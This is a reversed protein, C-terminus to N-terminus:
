MMNDFVPTINLGAEEMDFVMDHIEVEFYEWFAKLGMDAPWQSRPIDWSSIEAEFITQYREDFYSVVAEPEDFQPVLFVSCNSRIQELTLDPMNEDTQKLWALFNATPKLVVATRDVFYM